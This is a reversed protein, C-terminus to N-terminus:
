YFFTFEIDQEFDGFESGFINVGGNYDGIGTYISFDIVDVCRKQAVIDNMTVSSVKCGEIYTGVNDIMLNVLRGFQTGLDWWSPTVRGRRNGFDGPSTYKGLCFNNIYFFIDSPYHMNYGPHESCLELTIEIKKLNKIEIDFLPIHYTLKGETFWVLQIEEKKEYYFVRPEDIFGILQNASAMGCPKTVSFDYFSGVPIMKRISNKPFDEKNSNFILIMDDKNLQCMKLRGRIGKEFSSQVIGCEELITIHKTVMASSINLKNSISQISLNEKKLLEIIKIRMDASLAQFLNINEQNVTIYKPNLSM